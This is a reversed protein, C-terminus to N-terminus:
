DRVFSLLEAKQDETRTGYGSPLMFLADYFNLTKANVDRGDYRGQGKIQSHTILQSDTRIMTVYTRWDRGIREVTALAHSISDHHYGTQVDAVALLRKMGPWPDVAQGGGRGQGWAALATGIGVMLLCSKIQTIRSIRPKMKRRTENRRSARQLVERREAAAVCVAVEANGTEMQRLGYGAHRRARAWARERLIRFINRTTGLFGGVSLLHLYRQFEGHRRRASRIADGVAMNSIIRLPRADPGRSAPRFEQGM